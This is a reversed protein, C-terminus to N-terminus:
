ADTAAKRWAREGADLGHAIVDPAYGLRRLARMGGFTRGDREAWSEHSAISAARTAVAVARYAPPANEPAPAFGVGIAVEPGLDWAEAMLVGVSPYVLRAVQGVFAPSGSDDATQGPGCRFVVLQGLGHLLSSLYPDGATAFTRSVEAAVMSVQRLHNAEGQHSRVQFVKANMCASMAIEWLRRRGVRVIAEDLSVPRPARSTSARAELWVRQVMGPESRVVEVVKAHAPEGCRLLRDLRLAGAPFLPFDLRPAMCTRMLRDVFRWDSRSPADERLRYLREVLRARALGLDPEVVAEAGEWPGPGFALSSGIPPEEPPAERSTARKVPPPRRAPGPPSDWVRLPAAPAVARGGWVFSFLVRWWPLVPPQSPRVSPAAFSHTREPPLRAPPPGVPATNEDDDDLVEVPPTRRGQTVAPAPSPPADPEPAPAVITAGCGRERPDDDRTGSPQQVARM